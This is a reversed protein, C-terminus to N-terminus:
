PAPPLLHRPPPLLLDRQGAAVFRPHFPTLAVAAPSFGRRWHVSVGLEASENVFSSDFPEPPDGPAAALARLWLAVPASKKRESLTGVFEVAAKVALCDLGACSTLLVTM